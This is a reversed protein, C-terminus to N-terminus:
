EPDELQLKAYTIDVEFVDDVILDSNYKALAGVSSYNHLEVGVQIYAHAFNDNGAQYEYLDEHVNTLYMKAWEYVGDVKFLDAFELWYYNDNGDFGEQTIPTIGLGILTGLKQIEVPEVVFEDAHHVKFYFMISEYMDIQPFNILRLALDLNFNTSSITWDGVRGPQRFVRNQTVSPEGGPHIVWDGPDDVPNNALASSNIDADVEDYLDELTGTPGAGRNESHRYLATSDGLDMDAYEISEIVDIIHNLVLVAREWYHVSDHVQLPGHRELLNTEYNGFDSAIYAAETTPSIYIGPWDYGENEILPEELDNHMKSEFDDSSPAGKEYDRMFGNVGPDDKGNGDMYGLTYKPVKRWTATPMSFEWDAAATSGTDQPDDHNSEDGNEIEKWRKMVKRTIFINSKDLFWDYEGLDSLVKELARGNEGWLEDYLYAWPPQDPNYKSRYGDLNWVSGNWWKDEYTTGGPDGDITAADNGFRNRELWNTKYVDNVEAVFNMKRLFIEVWPWICTTDIKNERWAPRQDDLGTDRPPIPHVVGNFSGEAQVFNKVIDDWTVTFDTITNVEVQEGAAQNTDVEATVSQAAGMADADTLQEAQIEVKNGAIHWVTRETNKYWTPPVQEKPDTHIPLFRWSEIVTHYYIAPNSSIGQNYCLWRHSNFDYHHYKYPNVTRRWYRNYDDSYIGGDPPRKDGDGRVNGVYVHQTDQDSMFEVTSVGTNM